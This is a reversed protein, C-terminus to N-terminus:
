FSHVLGFAVQDTKAGATAGSDAVKDEGISGYAFTAKSLAYRGGLTYGSKTRSVPAAAPATKDSGFSLQAFGTFASSFPASVGLSGLTTKLSTGAIADDAQVSGYQAFV